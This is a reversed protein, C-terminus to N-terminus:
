NLTFGKLVQVAVKEMILQIVSNCCKTINRSSNEPHLFKVKLSLEESSFSRSPGSYPIKHSLPSECAKIATVSKLFFFFLCFLFFFDLYVWRGKMFVHWLGPFTQKPQTAKTGARAGWQPCESSCCGHSHLALLIFPFHPSFFLVHLIEVVM